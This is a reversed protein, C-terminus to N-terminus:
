TAPGDRRWRAFREALLATLVLFIWVEPRYFHGWWWEPYRRRWAVTEFHDVNNEQNPIVGLITDNNLFGVQQMQYKGHPLFFFDLFAPSGRRALKEDWIWGYDCDPIDLSIGRTGDPSRTQKASFAVQELSYNTSSEPDFVWRADFAFIAM